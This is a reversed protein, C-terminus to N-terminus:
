GGFHAADQRFNGQQVMANTEDSDVGTAQAQPFAQAELDGVNIGATHEQVDASALAIVVTVDRQGLACKQEQAFLPFGMAMGDKEKGGLTMATQAGGAGGFGHAAGGELASEAQGEFGAADFFLGVDMRQAVRVCGVQEFLPFVEALNLDVEAVLTGNGGDDVGVQGAEAFGLM